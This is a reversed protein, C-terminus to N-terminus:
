RESLGARPLRVQLWEFALEPTAFAHTPFTAGAAWVIATMIGRELASALVVAVGVLVDPDRTFTQRHVAAVAARQKANLPESGRADVLLGIRKETALLRSLREIHADFEHDLMAAAPMRM